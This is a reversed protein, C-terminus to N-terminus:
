KSSAFIMVDVCSVSLQLAEYELETIVTDLHDRSLGIIVLDDVTFSMKQFLQLNTIAWTWGRLRRGVERNRKARTSM